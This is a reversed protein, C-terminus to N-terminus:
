SMAARTLELLDTTTSWTAGFTATPSSASRAGAHRRGRLDDWAGQEVDRLDRRADAHRHSSRRREGGHMLQDVRMLRKGLKGGPHM